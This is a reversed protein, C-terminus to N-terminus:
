IKARVDVEKNKETTIKSQYIGYIANVTIIAAYLDMDGQAMFFEFQPPLFEVVVHNIVTKLVLVELFSQVNESIDEQNVQRIHINFPQTVTYKRQTKVSNGQEDIYGNDYQVDYELSALEPM